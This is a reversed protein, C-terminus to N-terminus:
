EGLAVRSHHRQTLIFAVVTVVLLIGAAFYAIDPSQFPADPGMFWGFIQSFFIAGFIMSVTQVSAIGGQMEGQANEPVERSIMAIMAPNAIGEPAHIVLLILVAALGPAFGYAFASVMGFALGVLVTRSEGLWKVAPGTLGGQVIATTIGFVALTLGITSASWGFKAVGWFPWIVMYVSSAFFYIALVGCLPLVGKYSAFVKLAGIPNARIWNFPRRKDPTLTEPLVFWGFIFNAASVGAAVFFPVRPGFEGLLGGIAPGIIFGLGFAAGMLGFAKARNEPATIDALYANAITYSAGCLGAILRGALLWWLNPAFATLLYDVALGFVALLLLPRRGFADSLSGMAPGFLFQMGGYALFLWGAVISAQGISTGGVTQILAPQVPIILGFGVMDLLVTIFVFIVANKGPRHDMNEESKPLGTLM